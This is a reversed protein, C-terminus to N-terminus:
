YRATVTFSVTRPMGYYATRIGGINSFEQADTKYVEDTLNKGYLGASYKGDASDWVVRADYLWYAEQFMSPLKVNSNVLTNDIALAMESRYRAQGGLTVGGMAGLDFEYSAGFRATWEPSFAPTQFARSNGFATFRRDTFEEYKADLYGIQADLLLQPTPNAYLELEAGATRLEGANIVTLSALPPLSPTPNEVFDTVRAQFDKYENLFVAVNARIKNNAWQTKAGAEWSTVTEPDYPAQEGPNNARGNIGGSKFGKSVRGYLMADDTLQYDVSLSPSLNSWSDSQTFAFTSDALIVSWDATTTRDYDKTEYTYRLGGSVRLKDTWQYSLNTYAASSETVLSDDIYRTFGLPTGFWTFLDDGYAEQHSTMDEKLFYVGTVSTWKDGTYAFQFEQSQQAQRVGVFVDGLEYQSADIDIYDDYSLERYSTISKLTLKDSLDISAVVSAGWHDLKSSNPLGPTTRSKFNFESGPAPAPVLVTAGLFFDTRFLASEQRGVTIGTDQTNYDASFDVSVADSPNWSAQARIAKTNKDNYEAGTVADEVYGDRVSVLGSVGVAFTDTLPGSVSGKAEMQNFTGYTASGQARFDQGPKRTVLKLAGGITNKGYLTGQPGRLVEVRQLDLLDLQTGRIRSYYVDDVYVGVAPDFTQLADPQGVGRIFINTADNSGRGQVINLNPVAGQIGTTDTAGIRELTKESFASVSAPVRQQNEETRRATVVIEEVQTNDAAEQAFAPAALVGYAAGALLTAKWLAKM